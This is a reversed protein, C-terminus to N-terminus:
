HCSREWTVTVKSIRIIESTAEQEGRPLLRNMRFDLSALRPFGARTIAALSLEAKEFKNSAINLDVLSTLSHLPCCTKKKDDDCSGQQDGRQATAAEPTASVILSSLRISPSVRVVSACYYYYHLRLSNISFMLSRPLAVYTDMEALAVRYFKSSVAYDTNRVLRIIPISIHACRGVIALTPSPRFHKAAAPVIQRRTCSAVEEVKKRERKTGNWDGKGMHRLVFKYQVTPTAISLCALRRM